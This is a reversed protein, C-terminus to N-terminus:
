MLQWKLGVGCRWWGELLSSWEFCDSVLRGGWKPGRPVRVRNMRRNRVTKAEGIIWRTHWMKVSQAFPATTPQTRSCVGLVLLCFFQSESFCSEYNQDMRERLLNGRTFLNNTKTNLTSLVRVVTTAPYFITRNEAAGLTSSRSFFELASACILGGKQTAFMIPFHPLSVPCVFPRNAPRCVLSLTFVPLLCNSLPIRRIQELGPPLFVVCASFSFPCLKIKPVVQSRQVIALFVYSKSKLSSRIPSEPTPFVQMRNRNESSANVDVKIEVM